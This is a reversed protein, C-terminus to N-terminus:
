PQEGTGGATKEYVRELYRLQGALLIKASPRVRDVFLLGDLHDLEHQWARAVLGEAEMEVREGDTLTARVRVKQARRVKAYIGPVSLCGEDEVAMGECATIVPNVFARVKGPELSPNLIVFRFPWGIQNAALGVGEAEGMLDAMRDALEQLFTNVEKIEGAHLRLVPDPYHVIHLKSLDPCKQM